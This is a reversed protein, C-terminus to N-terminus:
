PKKSQAPKTPKPTLREVEARLQEVEARLQENEAELEALRRRSRAVAAM